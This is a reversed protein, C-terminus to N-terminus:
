SKPDLLSDVTYLKEIDRYLKEVTDLKTLLYEDENGIKTATYMREFYNISATFRDVHSQKTKDLEFYGSIIDRTEDDVSFWNNLFMEYEEFSFGALVSGMDSQEKQMTDNTALLRAGYYNFETGNVDIIKIQKPHVIQEALMCIFDNFQYVYTMINNLKMGRISQIKHITYRYSSESFKDGTGTAKAIVRTDKSPVITLGDGIDIQLEEKTVNSININFPYNIIVSNVIPENKYHTGIILNEFEYTNITFFATTENISLIGFWDYTSATLRLNEFTIKDNSYAPLYDIKTPALTWKKDLAHEIIKLKKNIIFGFMSQDPNDDPHIICCDPFAHYEKGDRKIPLDSLKDEM